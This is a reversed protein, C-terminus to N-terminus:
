VEVERYVASQVYCSNRAHKLVPGLEGPQPFELQSRWKRRVRGGGCANHAHAHRQVSSRKQNTPIKNDVNGQPIMQVGWHVTLEFEDPYTYGKFRQIITVYVMSVLPNSILM